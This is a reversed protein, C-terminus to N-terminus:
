WTVRLLTFLGSGEMGVYCVMCAGALEEAGGEGAVAMWPVHRCRGWCPQIPCWSGAPFHLSTQQPPAWDLYAGLSNQSEVEPLSCVESGAQSVLMQECLHTHHARTHMCNTCLVFCPQSASCASMLVKPLGPAWGTHVWPATHSRQQPGERGLKLREEKLALM